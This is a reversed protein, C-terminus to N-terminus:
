IEENSNDLKVGFKSENPYIFVGLAEDYSYNEKCTSIGNDAVTVIQEYCM